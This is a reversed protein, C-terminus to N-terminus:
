VEALASELLVAVAGTPLTTLLGAITLAAAASVAWVEMGGKTAATPKVLWRKM